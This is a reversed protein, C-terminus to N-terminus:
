SRPAAYTGTVAFNLAKEVEGRVYAERPQEWYDARKALEELHADPLAFSLGGIEITVLRKVLRLLETANIGSIKLYEELERVQDQNLVLQRGKPDLGQYAELTEEMAKYRNKPNRALYTQDTSDNLKLPITIAM